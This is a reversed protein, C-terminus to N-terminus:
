AVKERAEVQEDHLTTEDFPAEGSLVRWVQDSDIENPRPDQRTAPQETPM